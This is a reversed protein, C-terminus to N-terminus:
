GSDISGHGLRALLAPERILCGLEDRGAFGPSTFNAFGMLAAGDSLLVKAHVADLDRM